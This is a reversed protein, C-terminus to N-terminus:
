RSTGTVITNKVQPMSPASTNLGGTGFTTTPVNLQAQSKPSNRLQKNLEEAAAQQVRVSSEWESRKKDAFSSSPISNLNYPRTTKISNNSTQILAVAEFSKVNPDRMLQEPNDGQVINGNADLAVMGIGTANGRISRGKVQSGDSTWTKTPNVSVSVSSYPITGFSVVPPSGDPSLTVDESEEIRSYDDKKLSGNLTRRKIEAALAQNAMYLNDKRVQAVERRQARQESSKANSFSIREKENIGSQLGAVYENKANELIREAKLQSDVANDLMTQYEPSDYSPMGGQSSLDILPQADPANPSRLRADIIGRLEDRDTTGYLDDYGINIGADSLRGEVEKSAISDPRFVTETQTILKQPDVTTKTNIVETGGETTRTITDTTGLKIKAGEQSFDVKPQINPVVARGALLDDFSFEKDINRIRNLDATRYKTPNKLSDNLIIDRQRKIEDAQAKANLLTNAEGRWSMIRENGSQDLTNSYPNVGEARMQAGTSALRNGYNTFDSSWLPSVAQSTYSNIDKTFQANNAQQQKVFQDQQARLRDQDRQSQGLWYQLARSPGLVQARGTGEQGLPVTNTYGTAM